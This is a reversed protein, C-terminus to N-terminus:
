EYCGPVLNERLYNLRHAVVTDRQNTPTSIETLIKDVNRKLLALWRWWKSPRHQNKNRHYFLHLIESSRQISTYQTITINVKRGDVAMAIQSSMSVELTAPLTSATLVIESLKHDVPV